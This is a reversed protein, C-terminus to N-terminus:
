DRGAADARESCSNIEWFDARCDYQLTYRTTLQSKLIKRDWLKTVDWRNQKSLASKKCANASYDSEIKHKTTLQNKSYLICITKM